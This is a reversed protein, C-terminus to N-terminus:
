RKDGDGSNRAKAGPSTHINHFVRQPSEGKKVVLDPNAGEGSNKLRDSIRQEMSKPTTLKVNDAM